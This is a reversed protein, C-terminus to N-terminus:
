RRAHSSTNEACASTTGLVGSCGRGRLRIRRARPPLELRGASGRVGASYEGRVRLYNRKWKSTPTSDSTNEACASTTGIHYRLNLDGTLIRRARPPLEKNMLDRVHEEDYEGRVRLYNWPEHFRWFGSLTNEACASTTGVATKAQHLLGRIRRARPPLELQQKPRTCFGM